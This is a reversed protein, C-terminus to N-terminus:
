FDIIGTTNKLKADDAEFDDNKDLNMVSKFEERINKFYGLNSRNNGPSTIARVSRWGENMFISPNSKLSGANIDININSGICEFGLKSVLPLQQNQKEKTSITSQFAVQYQNKQNNRPKLSNWANNTSIFMFSSDTNSINSTIDLVLSTGTDIGCTPLAKLQKQSPTGTDLGCTPLAKLQNQSPTGTDFGGTPLVKLQRQSLFDVNKNPLKDESILKRSNNKFLYKKHGLPIPSKPSNSSMMWGDLTLNLPKDSSLKTTTKNIQNNYHSKNNINHNWKKMLKSRVTTSM